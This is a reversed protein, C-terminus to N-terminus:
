VCKVLLSSSAAFQTDQIELALYIVSQMYVFRTTLTHIGSAKELEDILKHNPLDKIAEAPSQEQGSPLCNHPYCQLAAEAMNRARALEGKGTHNNSCFALRSAAMAWDSCLPIIVNEKVDIGTANKISATMEEKAEEVTLTSCRSSCGILQKYNNDFKTIGIVLRGDTLAAAIIIFIVQVTVSLMIIMVNMGQVYIKSSNKQQLAM